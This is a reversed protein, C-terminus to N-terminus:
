FVLSPIMKLQLRLIFLTSWFSTINFFKTICRRYILISSNSVISTRYVWSKVLCKWRSRSGISCCFRVMEIIAFNLPISSTTILEIMINLSFLVWARSSTSIKMCPRQIRCRGLVYVAVLVEIICIRVSWFYIIKIIIAVCLLVKLVFVVVVVVWAMILKMMLYIISCKDRCSGRISSSISILGVWISILSGRCCNRCCPKLLTGWCAWCPRDRSTVGM